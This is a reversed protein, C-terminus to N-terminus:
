FMKFANLFEINNAKRYIFTTIECTKASTGIVYIYIYIYIYRNININIDATSSRSYRWALVELVTKDPRVVGALGRVVLCDIRSSFSM